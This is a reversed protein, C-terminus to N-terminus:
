VSRKIKTSSMWWSVCLHGYDQHPNHQSNTTNTEKLTNGRMGDSILFSASIFSATFPDFSRSLRGNYVYKIGLVALNPKAGILLPYVSTFIPGVHGDAIPALPNLLALPAVLEVLALGQCGDVGEHARVRDRAPSADEGDALEGLADVLNIRVLRLLQQLLEVTHDLVVMVKLAPEPPPVRMVNTLLLM